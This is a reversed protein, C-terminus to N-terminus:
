QECEYVVESWLEMDTALPIGENGSLSRRMLLERMENNDESGRIAMCM